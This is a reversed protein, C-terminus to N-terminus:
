ENGVEGKVVYGFNTTIYQENEKYYGKNMIVSFSSNDKFSLKYKLKTENELIEVKNCDKRKCALEFSGIVDEKLINNENTDFNIAFDSDNIVFREEM